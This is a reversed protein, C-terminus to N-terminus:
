RITDVGTLIIKFKPKPLMKETTEIVEGNKIKERVRSGDLKVFYHYVMDHFDSYRDVDKPNRKIVALNTKSTEKYFYLWIGETKPSYENKAIFESVFSDLQIQVKRTDRYNSILFLNTYYVKEKGLSVITDIPKTYTTFPTIQIPKEAVCGQLLVFSLIVYKM